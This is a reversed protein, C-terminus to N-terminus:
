GTRLCAPRFAFPFPVSPSGTRQGFLFSAHGPDPVGRRRQSSSRHALRSTASAPQVVELVGTKTVAVGHTGGVGTPPVPVQAGMTIAVWRATYAGTCAIWTVM